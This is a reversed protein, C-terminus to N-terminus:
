SNPADGRAPNHVRLLKHTIPDRVHGSPTFTTPATHAQPPLVIGHNTAPSANNTRTLALFLISVGIAILAGLTVLSTAFATRLRHPRHPTSSPISMIDEKTAPPKRGPANTGFLDLCSTAQLRRRRGAAPRAQM